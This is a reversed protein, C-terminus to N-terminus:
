QPAPAQDDIDSDSELEPTRQGPDDDPPTPSSDDANVTEPSSRYEAMRLVVICGKAAGFQTLPKKRTEQGLSLLMGAKPDSYVLLAVSIM